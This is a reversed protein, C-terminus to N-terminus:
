DKLKLRCKLPFGMFIFFITLAKAKHAALAETKALPPVKTKQESALGAPNSADWNVARVSKSATAKGINSVKIAYLGPV